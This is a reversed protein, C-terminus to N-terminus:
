RRCGSLFIDGSNETARQILEATIARAPAVSNRDRRNVGSPKNSLKACPAAPM